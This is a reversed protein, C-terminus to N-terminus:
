FDGDDGNVFERFRSWKDVRKGDLKAVIASAVEDNRRYTEAGNHDIVRKRKLEVILRTGTRGKGPIRLRGSKRDTNCEGQEIRFTYGQRGWKWVIFAGMAALSPSRKPLMRGRETRHWQGAERLKLTFAEEEAKFYAKAEESELWNM